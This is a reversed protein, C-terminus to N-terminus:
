PQGTSGASAHAPTSTATTPSAQVASSAAESSADAAGAAGPLTVTFEIKALQEPAHGIKRLFPLWRTDAHLKALLPDLQMLPLSADNALVAKDLWAFAPDAEGGYAYVSAIDYPNDKAYKAILAALAADSSVKQGLARYALALGVLRLEEVKEQQMAALAARADGKLLLADGLLFHAGSYGPSLSLATRFKAIAGDYRGAAYYTMGLSTLRTPNVPDRAVVYEMVAIAPPLRDLSSLLNASNSLVGLDTPDLALARQFRRAAGPLDNQSMALNGLM